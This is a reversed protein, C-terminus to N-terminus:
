TGVNKVSNYGYFVRLVVRYEFKIDKIKISLSMTSFYGILQVFTTCVLTCIFRFRIKYYKESCIAPISLHQKPILM